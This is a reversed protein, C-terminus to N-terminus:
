PEGRRLDNTTQTAKRAGDMLLCADWAVARTVESGLTQQVLRIGALGELFGGHGPSGKKVLYDNMRALLLTLQEALQDTEADAAVRWVAQVFGAWGHCLSADSLLALQREDTVCSLLAREATRARQPYNLALSGLQQARAIGPLGYCWSPREAPRPRSAGATWETFSVLGPWGGSQMKVHDLSACIRAIADPQGRVVVGGSMAASLLALPGSIGHAMGFNGHGAPWQPSPEDRPGNASWWGPVRIGCMTLPETLRVLYSLVERLLHGGHDRLFVYVGLGTLGSVLDFERLEPLEGRDIRNHAYEVRRHVLADIHKDLKERVPAYAPRDALTLAYAVAPGGYFLGSDKGVVIPDRTAAKIWTHVTDWQGLGGRAREIHLLAVGTAGISLSQGSGASGTPPVM